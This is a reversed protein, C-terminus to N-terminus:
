SCGKRTERHHEPMIHVGLWLAAGVLVEDVMDNEKGKM